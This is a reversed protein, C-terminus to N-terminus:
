APGLVISWTLAKATSSSATATFGGSTGAGVGATDALAAVIRGGGVGVSLDRLTPGTALTWNTTASSKDAWYSVVTSGGNAVPVAPTTRTAGNAGDFAVAQATIGASDDYASLQLAAKAIASSTVRVQSGADAATATRTWLATQMGATASTASNVLTWGAPGGLSVNNSASTTVLVMVDGAQVAAPVVVTASTGNVNTGAAGRFTVSGTPPPGTSVSVQASASATAGDDDTVTLTVTYTGGGGYTHG